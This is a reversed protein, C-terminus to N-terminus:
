KSEATGNGNDRLNALLTRIEGICAVNLSTNYWVRMELALMELLAAYADQAEEGDEDALQEYEPHAELWRDLYPETAAPRWCKQPRPM